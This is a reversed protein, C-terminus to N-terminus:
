GDNFIDSVIKCPLERVLAAKKPMGKQAFGWGTVFFKANDNDYVTNWDALCIPTVFDTYKDLKRSLRVLAIDNLKYIGLDVYSEHEIVSDVKVDVVPDACDCDCSKFACECDSDKKTDFEGLRVADRCM